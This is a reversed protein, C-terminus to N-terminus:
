AYILHIKAGVTSNGLIQLGNSATPPFFLGAFFSWFGPARAFIQRAFFTCPFLPVCIPFIFLGPFSRLGSSSGGSGLSDSVPFLEGGGVFAKWSGLGTSRVGSVLCDFGPYEEGEFGTWGSLGIFEGGAALLGGGVEPFGGGGSVFGKCGSM